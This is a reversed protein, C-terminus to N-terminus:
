AVKSPSFIEINEANGFIAKLLNSDWLKRCGSGMMAIPVQEHRLKHVMANVANFTRGLEIGIQETTAKDNRRRILYEIESQSWLTNSRGAVHGRARRKLPIGQQRLRVVMKSISNQTLQLSESINALSDGNEWSQMLQKIQQNTWRHGYNHKTTKM